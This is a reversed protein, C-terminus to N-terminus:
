LNRAHNIMYNGVDSRSLILILLFSIISRILIHRKELSKMPFRHIVMNQIGETKYKRVESLSCFNIVSGLSRLVNKRTLRRIVVVFLIRILVQAGINTYVVCFKIVDFLLFFVLLVSCFVTVGLYIWSLSISVTNPDNSVVLPVLSLDLCCMYFVPGSVLWYLLEETNDFLIM